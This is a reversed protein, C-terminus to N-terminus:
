NVPIVTERKTGVWQARQRGQRFKSQDKVDGHEESHGLSVAYDNSITGDAYLNISDVQTYHVDWYTCEVGYRLYCPNGYVWKHAGRNMLDKPHAFPNGIHRQGYPERFNIKEILMNAARYITHDIDGATEPCLVVNLKVVVNNRAAAVVISGLDPPTGSGMTKKYLDPNLSTVSISVKDIYPMVEILRGVRIGNTRIGINNMGHYRLYLCLGILGDRMLPDTNTGTINVEKVDRKKCEAIFEDLGKIDGTLNNNMDQGPM